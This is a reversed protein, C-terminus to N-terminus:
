WAWVRYSSVQDNWSKKWFFWRSLTYWKLNAVGVTTRGYYGPEYFNISRGSYCSHQYLRVYANRWRPKNMILSSLQDNYSSGVWHNGSNNTNTRRMGTMESNYYAHRYFYFNGFGSNYQWSYCYRENYNGEIEPDALNEETVGKEQKLYIAMEEDNDFVNVIIERTEESPSEFLLSYSNEEKGFTSEAFEVEGRTELVEGELENLTYIIKFEKGKYKYIHTINIAEELSRAEKKVQQEVAETESILPENDKECGVFFMALMFVTLLYKIQKRM